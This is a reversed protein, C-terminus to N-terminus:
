LTGSQIVVRDAFKSLWYEPGSSGSKRYGGWPQAPDVQSPDANIVLRGVRSFRVPGELVAQQQDGTFVVISLGYPNESIIRSLEDETSYQSISAMSKFPAQQPFEIRSNHVLNPLSTCDTNPDDFLGVQLTRSVANLAKVVADAQQEHILIGRIAQCTQGDHRTISNIVWSAYQTLHHEPVSQEFIALDFGEADLVYSIHHEVALHAIVTCTQAAGFWVVHDCKPLVQEVQHREPPLLILADSPIGSEILMSVIIEEFTRNASSPRLLVYNGILLAAAVPVLGVILPENASLGILVRGKPRWLCNSRSQEQRLLARMAEKTHEFDGIHHKIPTKTSLASFRIMEEAQSEFKTLFRQLAEVRSVFPLTSYFGRPIM